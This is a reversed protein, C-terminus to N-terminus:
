EALLMRVSSEQNGAQLRLFYVGQSERRGKNNRGNWFVSNPGATQSSSVLTRVEQGRVNYVKATVFSDAALNYSITTRSNFPNPYNQNLRFATQTEDSVGTANCYEFAGMDPASGCYEDPSLDVLVEGGLVLYPTGADVCPSTEALRLDGNAADVFMPNQNINNSGSGGSPMALNCNYIEGYAGWDLYVDDSYMGNNEFVITNAMYITCYALYIGGGDGTVASNNYLTSGALFLTNGSGLTHVAGGNSYMTYNDIFLCNTIKTDIIGYGSIAGGGYLCNNQIFECGTIETNMDSTFKIAGGEGYAHNRIFKCDIFRTLPGAASGTGFAYVAGGMGSDSATADNDAFVCNSIVADSGMLALGGGHMDPYDGATKGYEIRCYSLNSIDGSDIRIGGWGVSQNDTTFSITDNEAGVAQLDGNVTFKFHGQFNVEVGPEIELTRSTPVVLEGTVLYPSGSTTWIGYQSGSVETQSFSLSPILLFIIAILRKM